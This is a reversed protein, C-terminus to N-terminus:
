KPLFAATVSEGYALDKDFLSRAKAWAVVDAWQAESPV